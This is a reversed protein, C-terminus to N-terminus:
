PPWWLVKGTPLVQAHVAIYPWTMVSSWQGITANTQAGAPPVEILSGLLISWIVVFRAKAQCSFYWGYSGRLFFLSSNWGRVFELTFRAGACLSISALIRRIREVPSGNLYLM